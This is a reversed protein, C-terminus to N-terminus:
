KKYFTFVKNEHIIPLLPGFGENWGTFHPQKDFHGYLLVNECNKETGEIEIFILPSKGEDKLLEISLGKVNQEKVWNILFNAAKELLGNTEWNSDFSKSLNPIEIYKMLSPLVNNTFENEIFIKNKEFELSGEM